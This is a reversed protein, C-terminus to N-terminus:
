TPVSYTFGYGRIHQDHRSVFVGTNIKERKNEPANIKTPTEPERKRQNKKMGKKKKKASSPKGGEGCANVGLRNALVISVMSPPPSTM